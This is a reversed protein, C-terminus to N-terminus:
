NLGMWPTPSIHGAGVAGYPFTTSGGCTEVLQEAYTNSNPGAVEYRPVLGTGQGTYGRGLAKNNARVCKAFQCDSMGPHTIPQRMTYDPGIGAPFSWETMSYPPNGTYEMGMTSDMSPFGGGNCKDCSVHVRCHYAGPIKHGGTGVNKCMIEAILGYPDAGRVPNGLVYAFLNPGGVLGM